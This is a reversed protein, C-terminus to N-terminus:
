NVLALLPEAFSQFLLFNFALNFAAYQIYKPLRSRSMLFTMTAFFTQSLATAYIGIQVIDTINMTAITYAVLTYTPIVWTLYIGPTSGSFIQLIIYTFGLAAAIKPPFVTAMTISSFTALEIGFRGLEFRNTIVSVATVLLMLAFATFYQRFFVAPVAMLLLVTAQVRSPRPIEQNYAGAKERIKAAISSIRATYDTVSAKEPTLSLHIVWLASISKVRPEPYLHM